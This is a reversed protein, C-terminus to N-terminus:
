IDQGFRGPIYRYNGNLQTVSIAGQELPDCELEPDMGLNMEPQLPAVPGPGVSVPAIAAAAAPVGPKDTGFSVGFDTGFEVGVDSCGFDGELRMDSISDM